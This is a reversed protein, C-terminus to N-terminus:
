IQIFIETFAAAYIEIETTYFNNFQHIFTKPTSTRRLDRLDTRCCHSKSSFILIQNKIQSVAITISCM